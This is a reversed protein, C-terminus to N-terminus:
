QVMVLKKSEIKSDVLEKMSMVKGKHAEIKQRAQKSCSLCAVEIKVDISGKALVKGPVVFVKDKIQHALESLRYVNIEARQRSAKGLRESIDVLVANKAKKGAKELHVITDRTQKRTPGTRMIM